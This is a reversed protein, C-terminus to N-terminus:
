GNKEKNLAKLQALVADGDALLKSLYDMKEPTWRNWFEKEKSVTPVIDGEIQIQEITIIDSSSVYFSDDGVYQERQEFGEGIGDSLQGNTYEVLEAMEQESLEEKAEYRVTYKLENDIFQFSLFGNFVKDVLTSDSDFYETFEDQCSLGDLGSLQEQTPKDDTEGTLSVTTTGSLKIIYM